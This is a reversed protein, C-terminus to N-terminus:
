IRMALTLLNLMGVKFKGVHVVHQFFKTGAFLKVVFLLQNVLLPEDTDQPLDVVVEVLGDKGCVAPWARQAILNSTSTSTPLNTSSFATFYDMTLYAPFTFGLGECLATLYDSWSIAVAINGIAYEMLLDWGIIWAVLEGFSVHAYTYASGALPVSSAFEAYCLASLLCAVATFGFLFVVGPGGSHAADGITSFIGAGVVAAIGLFTLDHLKLTRHLQEAEPHIEHVSKRKFLQDFNM